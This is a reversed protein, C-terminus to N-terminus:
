IVHHLRVADFINCLIQRPGQCFGLLLYLVVQSTMLFTDLLASICSSIMM